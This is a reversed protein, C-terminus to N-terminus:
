AGGPDFDVDHLGFRSAWSPDRRRDAWETLSLQLCTEFQFWVDTAGLLAPARGAEPGRARSSAQRSPGHPVMDPTIFTLGSPYAGGDRGAAIVGNIETVANRHFFPPRFTNETPDWRRPFVVLDLLNAGAEDLPASLVTYM